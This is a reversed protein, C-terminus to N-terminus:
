VILGLAEYPRYFLFAQIPNNEYPLRRQTPRNRLVHPMVMLLPIMLAQVVPQNPRFRENCGVVRQYM